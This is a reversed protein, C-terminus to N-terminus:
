GAKILAEINLVAEVYDKGTLTPLTNISPIASAPVGKTTQLDLALKTIAAPNGQLALLQGCIALEASQNPNSSFLSGISGLVNPLSTATVGAGTLISSLSKWSSTSAM